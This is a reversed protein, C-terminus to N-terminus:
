RASRKRRAATQPGRAAKARLPKWAAFERVFKVVETTATAIIREGKDDTALEPRGLAGVPSLQDITKTVSVRSRGSFDPSYFASNFPTRTTTIAKREVLDGHARLMVSTEWECAHVVSDQAMGDLAAVQERALDFWSAFTLWLDPLADHYRMNVDYLATSAPVVNGAHSNLLFIRRFGANIVSEVLDTLVRTYTDMSLSLTGPFALHHDSAGLWLMPTFVARESLEAEARNAIAAGIMSDTLLPLHYGHQEFSGIPIVIVKRTHAGISPWPLNGLQM